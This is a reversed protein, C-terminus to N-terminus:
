KAAHRALVAAARERAAVFRERSGRFQQEYYDLMDGTDIEDVRLTVLQALEPDDVREAESAQVELARVQYRVGVPDNYDENRAAAKSNAMRFTTYAATSPHDLYVQWAQEAAPDAPPLSPGGCAAAFLCLLLAPPLRRVSM